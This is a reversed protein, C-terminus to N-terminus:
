SPRPHQGAAESAVRNSVADKTRGALGVALGAAITLTGLVHGWHLREGLWAAAIAAGFVSQLLITLAAASVPCDKIIVFWATYAVVTCVIALGFLLGWAEPTLHSAATLTARGDILVNAATGTLLSIALMKMVSAKAVIPKGAVSYAAECVFSSIFILSAALGTWHFDARWVRNLLAVGVLGLFFGALRHSGMPERLFWAAALSTLIPEVAMLVSSNGATGLVNGYVQLRQGVVFLVLGMLCTKVLDRGRPAPGPLWPWALLFCLGALGFRLTVIGGTPLHDQGIIKYASPVAAWFFNLVVLILSHAPKM